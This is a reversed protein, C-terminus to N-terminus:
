PHPLRSKREVTLIQVHIAHLRGTQVSEMMVTRSNTANILSAVVHCKCLGPLKFSNKCKGTRCIETSAMCWQLELSVGDVAGTYARAVSCGNDGASLPLASVIHGPAASAQLEAGRCLVDLGPPSPPPRFSPICQAFLSPM